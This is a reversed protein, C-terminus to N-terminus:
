KKLIKSCQEYTPDEMIGFKENAAQKGIGNGGTVYANLSQLVEFYHYKIQKMEVKQMASLHISTGCFYAVGMLAYNEMVEPSNKIEITAASVHSYNILLILIIIKKLIDIFIKFM